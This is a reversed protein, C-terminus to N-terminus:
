GKFVTTEPHHNLWDFWYDKNADLPKLCQGSLTGEFACGRFDWLSQTEQDQAMAKGAAGIQPQLFTLRQAALDSRFVRISAKDPGVLILTPAGDWRDEVVRAALLTKIPYARSSGDITV